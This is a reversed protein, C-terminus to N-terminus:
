SAQHIGITQLTRCLRISTPRRALPSQSDDAISANRLHVPCKGPPLFPEFLENIEPPEEIAATESIRKTSTHSIHPRMDSANFRLNIKLGKYGYITESHEKVTEEDDVIPYTWTPHFSAITKPPGQEAKTVLSVTMADNVRVRWEDLTEEAM